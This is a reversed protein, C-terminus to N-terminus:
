LYFISVCSVLVTNNKFIGNEVYKLIITYVCMYIYIYVCIKSHFSRGHGMFGWQLYGMLILQIIIGNSLEMGIYL